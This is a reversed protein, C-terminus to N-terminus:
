FHQGISMAGLPFLSAWRPLDMKKTAKKIQDFFFTWQNNAM